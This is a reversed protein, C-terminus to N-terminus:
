DTDYRTCAGNKAHIERLINRQDDIANKVKYMPLEKYSREVDHFFGGETRRSFKRANWMWYLGGVHTKWAAHISQDLPNCAPRDVMFGGVISIAKHDISRCAIRKVLANVRCPLSM